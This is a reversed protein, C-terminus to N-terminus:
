KTDPCDSSIGRSELCVYPWKYTTQVLGLGVHISKVWLRQFMGFLLPLLSLGPRPHFLAPILQQCCNTPTLLKLNQTQQNDYLCVVYLEM